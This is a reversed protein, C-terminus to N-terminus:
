ANTPNSYPGTHALAKMQPPVVVALYESNVLNTSCDVVHLSTPEGAKSILPNLFVMSGNLSVLTLPEQPTRLFTDARQACTVSWVAKRRESQSLLLGSVSKM